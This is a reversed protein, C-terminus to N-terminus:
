EFNITISESKSLSFQSSKYNGNIAYFSSENYGAFKIEIPGEDVEVEYFWVTNGISRWNGPSNFVMTAHPGSAKSNEWFVDKGNARIYGDM